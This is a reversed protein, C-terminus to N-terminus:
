NQIECAPITACKVIIKCSKGGAGPKELYKPWFIFFSNWVLKKKDSKYNKQFNKFFFDNKKEEWFQMKNRYKPWFVFFFESWGKKEYSKYMKPIKRLIDLRTVTFLRAFSFFPVMFLQFIPAAPPFKQFDGRKSRNKGGGQPPSATKIYLKLGRCPPQM